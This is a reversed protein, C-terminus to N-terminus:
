LIVGKGTRSGGNTHFQRYHQNTLMKNQHSFECDPCCWEGLFNDFYLRSLWPPKNKLISKSRTKM